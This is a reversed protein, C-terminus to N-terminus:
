PAVAVTGAKGAAGEYGWESRYDRSLRYAPVEAADDAVYAALTESTAIRALQSATIRAAFTSHAAVPLRFPEQRAATSWSEIDLRMPVDDVILVLSRVEPAAAGTLDRDISSSLACWLWTVTAGRGSVTVPSLTLYDKGVASLGPRETQLVVPRPPHTLSEGTEEDFASVTALREVSGCGGLLSALLLAMLITTRQM